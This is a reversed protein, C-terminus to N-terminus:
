KTAVINLLWINDLTFGYKERYHKVRAAPRYPRLDDTLRRWRELTVSSWRSDLIERALAEDGRVFHENGHVHLPMDILLTGGPELLDYCARLDKQYAEVTLARDTIDEHWHELTSAGYILTFRRGELRPSPFRDLLFQKRGFRPMFGMRLLRAFIRTQFRAFPLGTISLAPLRDADLGVYRVGQRECFEETLASSPGCGIELVRAERFRDAHKELIAQVCRRIPSDVRTGAAGQLARWNGGNRDLEGGFEAEITRCKDHMHCSACNIEVEQFITRSTAM